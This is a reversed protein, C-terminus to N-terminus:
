FKRVDIKNIPINEIKTSNTVNNKINSNNKNNNNSNNNNQNVNSNNKKDNKNNKNNKIFEQFAKKHNETNNKLNTIKKELINIKNELLTIKNIFYVKYQDDNKFPISQNNGKYIAVIIIMTLLSLSGIFVMSFIIYKLFIKIDKEFYSIDFNPEIIKIKENFIEHEDNNNIINGKNEEFNFIEEQNPNM